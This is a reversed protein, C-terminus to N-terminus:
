EPLLEYPKGLCMPRRDGDASTGRREDAMYDFEDLGCVCRRNFTHFNHGHQIERRTRNQFARQAMRRNAEAIAFNAPAQRRREEEADALMHRRQYDNM